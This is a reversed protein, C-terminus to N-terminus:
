GGKLHTKLLSEILTDSIFQSSSDEAIILQNNLDIVLTQIDPWSGPATSTSERFAKIAIARAPDSFIVAQGYINNLNSFSYIFISDDGEQLHNLLNPYRLHNIPSIKWM